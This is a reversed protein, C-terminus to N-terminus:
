ARESINRLAAALRGPFDQALRRREICASDNFTSLLTERDDEEGGWDVGLFEDQVLHELLAIAGLMTAPEACPLAELLDGSRDMAASTRAWAAEWDAGGPVISGSFAEARNYEAVAIRHREILGFVPDIGSPTALGAALGNVTTGAALAAAAVAPAGALLARRSRITNMTNEQLFAPSLAPMPPTGSIRPQVAEDLIGLFDDVVM